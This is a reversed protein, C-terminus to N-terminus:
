PTQKRRWERRAAKGELISDVVQFGAYLGVLSKIVLITWIFVPEM